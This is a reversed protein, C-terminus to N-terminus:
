KAAAMAEVKQLHDACDKSATSKNAVLCAAIRGQGPLTKGCVGEIEAKCAAVADKLLDAQSQLSAKTEGLEYACRASIKDEYAQMCHVIRGEGPTVNRCFRRLDKACTQQLKVIQATMKNLITDALTSQASAPAASLLLLLSLLAFGTTTKAATHMTTTM